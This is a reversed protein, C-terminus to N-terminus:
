CEGPPVNDKLLKVYIRDLGADEACQVLAEWTCPMSEEDEDEDDRDLWKRLVARIFEEIDNHERRLKRVTLSDGLLIYAFDECTTREHATIIPIIRLKEGSGDRRKMCILQM